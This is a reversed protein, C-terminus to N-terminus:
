QISCYAVNHWVWHLHQLKYLHGATEVLNSLVATPLIDFRTISSGTPYLLRSYWFLKAFSKSKMSLITMFAVVMGFKPTISCVHYRSLRIVSICCM